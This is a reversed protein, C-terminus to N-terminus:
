VSCRSRFGLPCPSALLCRACARVIFCIYVLWGCPPYNKQWGQCLPTFQDKMLTQNKPGLQTGWDNQLGLVGGGGGEREPAMLRCSPFICWLVVECVNEKLFLIFWENAGEASIDMKCLRSFIRFAHFKVMCCAIVTSLNVQWACDGPQRQLAVASTFLQATARSRWQGGTSRHAHLSKKTGLLRGAPM